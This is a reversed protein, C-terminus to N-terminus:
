RGDCRYWRRRFIFSDSMVMSFVACRTSRIRSDGAVPEVVDLQVPGDRYDDDGVVAHRCGLHRELREVLTGGFM